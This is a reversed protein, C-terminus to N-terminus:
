RVGSFDRTPVLFKETYRAIGVTYRVNDIYGTMKATTDAGAGIYIPKNGGYSGINITGINLTTPDPIGNLFLRIVPGNRVAALHYWNNVVVLLQTAILDSYATGAGGSNNVAIYPRGSTNVGFGFMGGTQHSAILSQQSALTTVFFWCEITFNNTGLYFRNNAAISLYNSGNFNISSNGFIKQVSSQTVTGNNTVTLNNISSDVFTTSSTASSSKVLFEVNPLFKDTKYSISLSDIQNIRPTFSTTYLAKGKIVRLGAIYGKYAGTNNHDNGIYYTGAPFNTSNTVTTELKGNIFMRLSTGQRTVAVHYWQNSNPAPASIYDAINSGRVYVRGDVRHSVSFADNTPSFWLINRTETYFWCEWTFDGTGFSLLATSAISLNDVAGDFYIAQIRTGIPAKRSVSVNGNLTIAFNNPSRDIITSGQCALLSTGTIATLSSRTPVFNSTYLAIGTLIRLNYIYGNALETGNIRSGIKLNNTVTINHGTPTDSIILVGNVYIKRTLGDFQTAVHNWSNLQLSINGTDLDNTWWYTLIGNGTSNIRLGFAKNTVEEGWSVITQTAGTLYFWCEVTYSENGEPITNNSAVSLYDGTGDFYVSEDEITTELIKADGGTTIVLRNNSTDVFRQSNIQGQPILIFSANNINEVVINGNIASM